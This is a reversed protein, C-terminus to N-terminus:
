MFQTVGYSKKEIKKITYYFEAFSVHVNPENM